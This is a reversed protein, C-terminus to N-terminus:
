GLSLLNSAGFTKLKIATELLFLEKAVYKSKHFVSKSNPNKLRKALDEFLAGIRIWWFHSGEFHDAPKQNIWFTERRLLLM